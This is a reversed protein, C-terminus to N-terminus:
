KGFQKEAVEAAKVLESWDITQSCENDTTTEESFRKTVDELYNAIEENGHDRAITEPLTLNGKYANHVVRRASSNFIIDIFQQAGIEAAVYVLLSLMQVPENCGLTRSIETEDGSNGSINGTHNGNMYDECFKKLFRPSSVVQLLNAGYTVETKGLIIGEQSKLTVNVVAPVSSAPFFGLKSFELKQTGLGEFTAYVSKVESHLEPTFTFVCPGGGQLPSYNPNCEVDFHLNNWLWPLMSIMETDDQSSESDSASIGSSTDMQDNELIFLTSNGQINKKITRGNWRRPSGDFDFRATDNDVNRKAAFFFGKNKLYPFMEELKKKVMDASMSANFEVDKQYQKTRTRITAIESKTPMHVQGNIIEFDGNKLLFVNRQFQDSRAGSTSPLGLPQEM